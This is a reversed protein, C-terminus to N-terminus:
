HICGLKALRQLDSAHTMYAESASGDFSHEENLFFHKASADGNLASYFLETITTDSEEKPHNMLIQILESAKKSRISKKWICKSDKAFCQKGHCSVQIQVFPAFTGKIALAEDIQFGDKSRSLKYEKFAEDGPFILKAPTVDVQYVYLSVIVESRKIGCAVLRSEPGFVDILQETSKCPVSSSRSSVQVVDQAYGYHGVCIVIAMLFVHAINKM